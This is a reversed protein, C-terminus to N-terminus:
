ATRVMGQARALLDMGERRARLDLYYMLWGVYLLPAALMQALGQLVGALVQWGLGPLPSGTAGAIGTWFAQIASLSTIASEMAYLVAGLAMFFGVTRWFNGSVLVWSRRFAADLSAGEVGAVPEAMSLFVYVLLGPVILFLFGVGAAIGTLLAILFLWLFNRAGGKLFALTPVPRRALLDPTAALVCSFYYLAVLSRVSVIGALMSYSDWVQGIYQFPDGAEASARMVTQLYTAQALGLFLGFPLLLWAAPVALTRFEARYVAIAEDVVRGIGKPALDTQM